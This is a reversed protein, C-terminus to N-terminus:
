LKLPHAHFIFYWHGESMMRLSNINKEEALYKSIKNVIKKNKFNVYVYNGYNGGHYELGLQELKKKLIKIGKKTENVYDKVISNNDLITEAFIASM